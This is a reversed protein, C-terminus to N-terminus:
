QLSGVNLLASGINFPGGIKQHCSTQSSSLPTPAKQPVGGFWPFWCRGGHRESLGQKGEFLTHALFYPGWFITTQQNTEGALGFQLIGLRLGSSLLVLEFWQKVFRRKTERPEGSERPGGEFGSQLERTLHVKPNQHQGVPLVVRARRRLRRQLRYVGHAGRHIGDEHPVVGVRRGPIFPPTAPPSPPVQHPTPPNPPPLNPPHSPPAQPHPTPWGVLWGVM